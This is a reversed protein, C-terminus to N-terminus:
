HGHDGARSGPMLDAGRDACAEHWDHFDAPDGAWNSQCEGLLEEWFVGPDWEEVENRETNSRVDVCMGLLLSQSSQSLLYAQLYTQIIQALVSSGVASHHPCFSLLVDM